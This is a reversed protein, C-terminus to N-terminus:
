NKNLAPKNKHKSVELLQLRRQSSKLVKFHLGGLTITDLQKPMQEFGKLVVGSITNADTIAFKTNFFANFEDLPTNARVLYRGDGHDIINDQEFDHEDEIEGVIQEIVDEITILGVINKYEDVALVMHSKNIQFDKLVSELPKSTPVLVPPRLYEKINITINPKQIFHHLIDKALLLGIFEDQDFVPFRSHASNSIVDLVEEVKMDLKIEVMKSRPTIIDGVQMNAIQIVSNILAYSHQSIINQGTASALIQNFDEQTNILKKVLKYKIALWYSSM